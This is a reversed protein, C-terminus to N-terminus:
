GWGKRTKIAQAALNVRVALGNIGSRDPHVAKMAARYAADFAARTFSGDAPLDFLSVADSFADSGRAPRAAAEREEEARQAEHFARKFDAFSGFQNRFGAEYEARLAHDPDWRAQLHDLLLLAQMRLAGLVARFPWLALAWLALLMACLIEGARIAAGAIRDSATQVFRIGALVAVEIVILLARLFALAVCVFIGLGLTLAPIKMIWPLEVIMDWVYVAADM